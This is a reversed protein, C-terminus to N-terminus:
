FSAFHLVCWLPTSYDLWPRVWEFQCNMRLLLWYSRLSSSVILSLHLPISSPTHVGECTTHHGLVLSHPSSLVGSTVRYQLLNSVSSYSLTSTLHPSTFHGSHWFFRSMDILKHHRCIQSGLFRTRFRSHGILPRQVRTRPTLVRSRLWFCIPCSFMCSGFLITKFERLLGPAKGVKHEPVLLNALSTKLRQIMPITPTNQEQTDPSNAGRGGWTMRRRFSQASTHRGRKPHPDTFSKPPVPHSPSHHGGEDDFTNDIIVHPPRQPPFAETNPDPSTTLDATFKTSPKATCGPRSLILTLWLVLYLSLSLPPFVSYVDLIPSPSNIPPNALWSSILTRM